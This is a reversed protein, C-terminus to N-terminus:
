RDSHGHTFVDNDDTGLPTVFAFSFNDIQERVARRSDCPKLTSVIGAMREDDVTHFSYQV